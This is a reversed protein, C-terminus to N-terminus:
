FLRPNRTDFTKAHNTPGVYSVLHEAHYAVITCSLVKSAAGWPVLILLCFLDLIYCLSSYPYM